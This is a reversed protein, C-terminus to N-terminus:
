REPRARPPGTQPNRIRDPLRNWQLVTLIARVEELARRVYDRAEELRPRIVELARPPEGGREVAAQISDAVATTRTALTDRAVELAVVQESTLQLSDRLELVLAPPNPLIADLRAAFAGPALIAGPGGPAFQGGLGVLGGDPGPGAFGGGGGFGRMADLAARGRDPGLTFRAQIGIQFPQRFANAGSGTVGFRENVTYTFRRATSDFGTVYLLTPDPRLMLGWGRANASGHLVEDVGRLLNVTVVSVALRRSLGLFNPRYILQVDFSAQWPGRCSNREAVRGIMRQLCERTRSEAGELLRAMQSAEAFEANPDFVFARDNRAGDGNIDSGVLPTFPAGSSLRAIGTLEIAPGFPRTIMGLLSHRRDFDSPAWEYVNPDGATTTLGLGLVSGSPGGPGIAGGTAGGLGLRSGSSQDRAFAWTYSLQLMVGRRTLGGLSVTVQKSDSGLDSRAELIQGLSTDLRSDAPDIAGTGSVIDAPAVYVPRDGEAALVFRPESVLNLDRFGYQRVGRAYTADVSFRFLPTLNRQFGLSARWASPAQFGDGFVVVNRLRTASLSGGSLCADPIAATDAVYAQWDPVPVGAGVCVVESQSTQLGTAAHAAAALSLPMPSRFEGAGGRVILAPPGRGPGGGVTWTFGARPSLHWEAPLRDTRRGFRTAVEPNYVPPDLFRSAEVRFGYTLQFAPTARWVDGAYLAYSLGHASRESAGLTRTFSAPRNQELDALSQYTFTGLANNSALATSRESRFFGGLKLRHGGDGPLASAEDAVEFSSGRSSFPLSLSGGFTLSGVGVRNDTLESAVQVRGAPLASFPVGDRRDRSWYGRAENIVRSGFRSTLTAMVGQASSEMRGGVQPLATPQLRTPDQVTGRWDGRVTLTHSHNLLYDFRVLASLDDSSVNDQPAISTPSVGLAEIANM